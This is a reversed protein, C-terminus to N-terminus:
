LVLEVLILIHLNCNWQESHNYCYLFYKVLRGIPLAMTRQCVALLRTEQQEIFEHDSCYYTFVYVCKDALLIRLIISVILMYSNHQISLIKDVLNRGVVTMYSHVYTYSM